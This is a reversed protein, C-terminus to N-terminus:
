SQEQTDKIGNLGEIIIGLKVNKSKLTIDLLHKTLM